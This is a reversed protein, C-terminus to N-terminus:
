TSKINFRVLGFMSQISIKDQTASTSPVAHLCVFLSAQGKCCLVQTQPMIFNLTEHREEIYDLQIYEVDELFSAM